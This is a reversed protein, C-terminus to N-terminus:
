TATDITLQELWDLVRARFVEGLVWIMGAAAAVEPSNFYRDPLLDALKRAM